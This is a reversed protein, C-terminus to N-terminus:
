RKFKFFSLLSKFGEFLIKLDEFTRIALLRQLIYRPRLYFRRYMLTYLSKIEKEDLNELKMIPHSLDYHDWNFTLILNREKAWEFMVTGPYPTTVNVILYDPNLRNVFAINKMISEYTDGPNGVMFALRCEIGIKKTWKTANIVEELKIKKNINKLVQKDITEVGYMIQHCGARKMYKLMKLSIFDVRAFCTWTIDINNEIIKKCLEIVNKKNATFTDDYFLIQKISYNDILYKIEEFIKNASKFVFRNGLTKSCFTCKGPCGRSTVMSMAPLRKYTGKAPIYKQIPLLDYAPMPMIDLNKIRERSENYIVEFGNNNIKKYAIGKIESLNKGSIIEELTLEGEGIVVIDVFNKNIVEDTVFTPHVGGFIVTSDPYFEKCIKALKYAKKIQITMATFGINMISNYKNVFNEEFYERFSHVIPSEVTCDLIKVNYGKKRIYGALDALGLPPFNSSVEGWINEVETNYNPPAILLCDLRKEKKIIDM